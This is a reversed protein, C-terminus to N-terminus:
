NTYENLTSPDTLQKCAAQAKSEHCIIHCFFFLFFLDKLLELIHYCFSHGYLSFWSVETELGLTLKLFFHFGKRSIFSLIM